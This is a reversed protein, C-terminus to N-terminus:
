AGVLEKLSWVRWDYIFADRMEYTGEPASPDPIGFHIRCDLREAVPDYSRVEWLYDFAPIPLETSLRPTPTVRRRTPGLQLTTKGGFLNLVLIGSPALTNIAHRLYALLEAPSPLHLISYNLVSIIDAHPVSPPGVSRVDGQVFTIQSALPGLLRFARRHAWEL